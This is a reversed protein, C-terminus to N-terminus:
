EKIIYKWFGFIIAMKLQAEENSIGIRPILYHYEKKINDEMMKTLSILDDTKCLGKESINIFPKFKILIDNIEDKKNFHYYIISYLTGYLFYIISYIVVDKIGLYKDLIIGMISFTVGCVFILVLIKKNM